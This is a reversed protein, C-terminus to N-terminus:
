GVSFMTFKDADLLYRQTRVVTEVTQLAALMESDLIFVEYLSCIFVKLISGM